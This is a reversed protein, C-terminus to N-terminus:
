EAMSELDKLCSSQHRYPCRHSSSSQNTCSMYYRLRLLLTRYLCYGATFSVAHIYNYGMQYCLVHLVMGLNWSFVPPHPHGPSNAMMIDLQLAFEKSPPQVETVTEVAMSADSSGLIFFSPMGAEPMCEGQDDPSYMEGSEESKNPEMTCVAYVAFTLLLGRPWKCLM